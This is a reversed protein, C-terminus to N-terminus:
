AARFAGGNARANHPAAERPESVSSHSPNRKDSKHQMVLQVYACCVRAFSAARMFVRTGSAQRVGIARLLMRQVRTVAHLTKERSTKQGVTQSWTGLALLWLVCKGLIKREHEPM